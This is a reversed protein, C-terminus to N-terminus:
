KKPFNYAKEDLVKVVKGQSIAFWNKGKVEDGKANKSYWACNLLWGDNEDYDVADFNLCTTGFSPNEGPITQLKEADAQPIPVTSGSPNKIYNKIFEVVAESTAEAGHKAIRAKKESNCMVLFAMSILMSMGFLVIKKM